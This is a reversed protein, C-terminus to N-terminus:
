FILIKASKLLSEKIEVNLPNGEFKPESVSLTIAYMWDRQKYSRFYYQSDKEILFTKKAFDDDKDISSYNNNEERFLYESSDSKSYIEWFGDLFHIIIDNDTDRLKAEKDNCYFTKSFSLYYNDVKTWLYYTRPNTSKIDIANWIELNNLLQPLINLEINKLVNIM